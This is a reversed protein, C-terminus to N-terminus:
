LGRLPLDVGNADCVVTGLARAPNGRALSILDPIAEIFERNEGNYATCCERGAIRTLLEKIAERDRDVFHASFNSVGQADAANLFVLPSGECGIEHNYGCGSNLDFHHYRFPSKKQVALNMWFIGRFASEKMVTTKGQGHM